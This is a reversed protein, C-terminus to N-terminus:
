RGAALGAAGSEGEPAAKGMPGPKAHADLGIGPEDAPTHRRIEDPVVEFSISQVPARRGNPLTAMVVVALRNSDGIARVVQLTVPPKEPFPANTQM